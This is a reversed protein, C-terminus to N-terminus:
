TADMAPPVPRNVLAIGTAILVLAVGLTPTFTEGLVINGAMVGFVPVLFTFASVRTPPYHRLLWFWATFSVFAVAIVHYAFSFVIPLSLNTIGAEGLLPSLPVLIIGSFLLQYLLTKEPPAARLPTLRVVLTTAGWLIAAVLCMIDGLFTSKGPALLNECMAVILGAFAALLGIAKAMTLRDGPILFHAGCAVVFPASYLLVVGRSATTLNLGAYLLAFETGFLAGVLVGPWFTRDREFMPIGRSMAWAFVLAGSLLSRLGAQLVPSIGANAIKITVQGGGWCACCALLIVVARLDLHQRLRPPALTQAQSM